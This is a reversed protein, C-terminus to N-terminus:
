DTRQPPAFSSTIKPPDVADRHKGGHKRMPLTDDAQTSTIAVDWTARPALRLIAYAPTDGFSSGFWQEGNGRMWLRAM